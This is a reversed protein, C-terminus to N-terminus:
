RRCAACGCAIGHGLPRRTNTTDRHHTAVSTDKNPLKRDNFVLNHDVNTMVLGRVILTSVRETSSRGETALPELTSDVMRPMLCVFFFRVNPCNGRPAHYSSTYHDSATCLQDPIATLIAVVLSADTFRGDHLRTSSGNSVELHNNVTPGHRVAMGRRM